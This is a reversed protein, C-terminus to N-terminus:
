PSSEIPKGTMRNLVTLIQFGVYSDLLVAGRKGDAAQYVIAIYSHFDLLGFLSAPKPPLVAGEVEAVRRWAAEGASLSLIRAPDVRITQSQGFVKAPAIAITLSDPNRTVTVITNWDYASAKVPVTGGTYRIKTWSKKEAGAALASLATGMVIYTLARRM